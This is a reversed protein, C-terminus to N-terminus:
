KFDWTKSADKNPVHKTIFEDLVKQMMEERVLKDRKELATLYVKQIQKSRGITMIYHLFDSVAPVSINVYVIHVYRTRNESVKYFASMFLGDADVLSKKVSPPLTSSYVSSTKSFRFYCQRETDVGATSILDFKRRSFLPGLDLTNRFCIMSYPHNNNDGAVIIHKGLTEKAQINLDQSVKDSLELSFATELDCPVYGTFKSMEIGKMGGISFSTKSRHAQHDNHDYITNWDSPTDILKFGFQIDRDTICPSNFDKPQYLISQRIGEVRLDLSIDKIFNEGKKIAFKIFREGRVYRAFTDEKM